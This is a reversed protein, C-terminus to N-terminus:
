EIVALRRENTQNEMTPCIRKWLTGHVGIFRLRKCVIINKENCTYLTNFKLTYKRFSNFNNKISM